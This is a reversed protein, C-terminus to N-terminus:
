GVRINRQEALPLLRGSFDRIGLSVRHPIFGKLKLQFARLKFEERAYHVVWTVLEDALVGVAERPM